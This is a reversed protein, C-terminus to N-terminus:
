FGAPCTAYDIMRAQNGGELLEAVSKEALDRSRHTSHMQWTHYARDYRQVRYQRAMGGACAAARIQILRRDSINRIM